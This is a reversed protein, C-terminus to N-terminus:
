FNQLYEVQYEVVQYHARTKEDFSDRDNLWRCYSLEAFAERDVRARVAEAIALATDKLRSFCFVQMTASVIRAAQMESFAVKDLRVVVADLVDAIDQETTQDLYFPSYSEVLGAVTADQLIYTRIQEEITM